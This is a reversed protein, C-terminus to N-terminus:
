KILLVFDKKISEILQTPIKLAEAKDVWFDIAQQVDIICKRANKITYAEAIKLV